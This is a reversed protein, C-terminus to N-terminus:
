DGKVKYITVEYLPKKCRIANGELIEINTALVGIHSQDNALVM